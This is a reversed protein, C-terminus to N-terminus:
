IYMLTQTTSQTCDNLWNAIQQLGDHGLVEPFFPCISRADELIDELEFSM